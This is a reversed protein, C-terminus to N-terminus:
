ICQCVNPMIQSEALAAPWDQYNSDEKKELRNTWELNYAGREDMEWEEDIAPSMPEEQNSCNDHEHNSECKDLGMAVLEAAQAELNELIQVEDPFLARSYAAKMLDYSLDACMGLGSLRKHRHICDRIEKFTPETNYTRSNFTIHTLLQHLEHARVRIQLQEVPVRTARTRVCRNQSHSKVHNGELNDGFDTNLSFCDGIGFFEDNCVDILPDSCAAQWIQRHADETDSMSDNLCQRRRNMDEM